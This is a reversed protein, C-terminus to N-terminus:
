LMSIFRVLKRLVLVEDDRQDIGHQVIWNHFAVPSSFDVITKKTKSLQKRTEYHYTTKFVTWGGRSKRYTITYEEDENLPYFSFDLNLVDNSFVSLCIDSIRSHYNGDRELRVGEIRTTIEKADVTNVLSLIQKMYYGHRWERIEKLEKADMGHNRTTAVLQFLTHAHVLKDQSSTANIYSAYEIKVLDNIM